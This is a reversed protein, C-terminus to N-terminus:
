PTLKALSVPETDLVPQEGKKSLLVNCLWDSNNQEPYDQRYHAGRSETRFLAARCVMEAVTLMNGLRVMLRLERQSTASANCFREQLDAVTELAQKLGEANRIIGARNWMAERLSRTLSEVKEDAKGSTLRNVRRLEAAVQEASLSDRKVDGARMAAERGAITGFVWAETLANGSLRNAGHVGACVEGAAYLGTVGTECRENIRVGGMHFHVTPAVPFRMEGKLFAKPLLPQLIELKAKPIEHLDLTVMDDSCLGSLVEKAMAQSLRDRTLSMPNDLSHKAVIDEGRNNLLRGGTELLLCEYTPTPTGLGLSLPYFQVFEMDQITAGANYALAYGDGTSGGANDTRSYLQGLGGSALVVAPAALILAQGETDIGVAGVVTDASKVLGTILTGELFRVGQTIAYQRLPFTFDTGFSNQGYVMRFKSHGPDVSLAIWPFGDASAYRVGFSRLDEIQQGAGRAMTESLTQNTLYLGGEVTDKFHQEVSDGAQFGPTGYSPVAAFAGGSITTNSGYGARSYSVLLVDAGHKRAEIAARLGAGGSGIVLVDTELITAANITM